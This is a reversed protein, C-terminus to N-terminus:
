STRRSGSVNYRGVLIKQKELIFFSKECEVYWRIYYFFHFQYGIGLFFISIPIVAILSIWNISKGIFVYIMAVCFGYLLIAQYNFHPNGAFKREGYFVMSSKSTISKSEPLGIIKDSFKENLTRKIEDINEYFPDAIILDKGNTWKIKVSTTKRGASWYFDIISLLDISNITSKHLDKKIFFGRISITDNKIKILNARKATIYFLVVTLILTILGTLPAPYNIGGAGKTSLDPSLVLVISITLFLIIFFFNMFAYFSFKSRIM